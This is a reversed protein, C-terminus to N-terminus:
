VFNLVTELYGINLFSAASTATSTKKGTSYLELQTSDTPSERLGYQYAGAEVQHTLSFDAQSFDYSAKVVTLTETGNTNSSGQNTINLKHEGSVLFTDILDGQNTFNVTTNNLQSSSVVSSDTMNWVYSTGLAKNGLQLNITGTSNDNAYGTWEGQGSQHDICGTGATIM